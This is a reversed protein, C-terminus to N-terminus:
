AMSIEFFCEIIIRQDGAEELNDTLCMLAVEDNNNGEIENKDIENNWNCHIKCRCDSELLLSKYYFVIMCYCIWREWNQVSFVHKSIFISYM